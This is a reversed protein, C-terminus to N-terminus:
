SIVYQYMIKEPKGNINKTNIGRAGIIWTKKAIIATINVNWDNDLENQSKKM